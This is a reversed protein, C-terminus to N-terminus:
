LTMGHFYIVLAKAIGPIYGVVLSHSISATDLGFNESDLGQAREESESVPFMMKLALRKCFPLGEFRDINKPKENVSNPHQRLM